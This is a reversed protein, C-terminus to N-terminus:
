KSFLGLELDYITDNTSDYVLKHSASSSTDTIHVVYTKHTTGEDDVLEAVDEKNIVYKYKVQMNQSEICLHCTSEGDFKYYVEKGFEESYYKGSLEKSSGGCACLAVAMVMILLCAMIKKM